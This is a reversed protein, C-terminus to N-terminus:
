KKTLLKKLKKLARYQLARVAEESKGMIESTERVNKEEFFRLIIVEKQELNLKKLYKLILTKNGVEQDLQYTLNEYGKEEKQNELSELPITKKKRWFDILLHRAIQYLWPEFKIEQKRQEQLFRLVNLFTTQTLDEAEEKSGLFALFYRYIPTFYKQYLLAFSSEDGQSAKEFLAQAENISLNERPKSM